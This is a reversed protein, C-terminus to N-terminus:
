AADKIKRFYNEDATRQSLERLRRRSDRQLLDPKHEFFRESPCSRVKLRDKTIPYQDYLPVDENIADARPDSMFKMSYSLVRKLDDDTPKIPEAYASIVCRQSPHRVIESFRRSLHHQFRDLTDNHVLYISHFHPTKPEILIKQSHKTFPFDVFDYTRPHLDFKKTFNKMLTSTLHRYFENYRDSIFQVKRKLKHISYTPETRTENFVTTMFFPKHNSQDLIPKMNMLYQYTMYEINM